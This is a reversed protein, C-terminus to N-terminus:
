CNLTLYLSANDKNVLGQLTNLAIQAEYPKGRLDYANLQGTNNFAPYTENFHSSDGTIVESLDRGNWNIYTGDM